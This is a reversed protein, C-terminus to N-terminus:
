KKKRRKKPKKKPRKSKWKTESTNRGLARHLWIRAEVLAEEKSASLIGPDNTSLRSPEIGLEELVSDVTAIAVNISVECM